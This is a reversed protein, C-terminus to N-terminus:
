SARARRPAVEEAAQVWADHLSELMRAMREVQGKNRKRVLGHLETLVFSYISALDSAIRGGKEHDLTMLLEGIIRAVKDQEKAIAAIDQSDFRIALRRLSAIAHEYLLPVLWEKSRGLVEAELYKSASAAYAM